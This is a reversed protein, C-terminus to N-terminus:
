RKLAAMERANAERIYAGTDGSALARELADGNTARTALTPPPPPANTSRAVTPDATLRDGLLVLAKLQQRPDLALIRKREAANQPQQLHYLIEAGAEDEMVWLDTASGPPIDTPANMAVADFDPHKAIAAQRRQEFGAVTREADERARAALQGAAYKAEQRATAEAVKYDTLAEVFAPDSTGYAFADPDPKVLGAPAASPAAPRADANPQRAKLDRLEREARDAREREAARDRLLEPIRKDAGPTPPAAPDSGAPQTRADTSAAPASAPQATSSAAAADTVPSPDDPMDGTMRWDHLQTESLRDLSGPANVPTSDAAASSAAPQADAVIPDPV